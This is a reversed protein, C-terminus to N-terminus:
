LLARMIDVYRKSLSYELVDKHFVDVFHLNAGYQLFLLVAPLANRLISYFVPSRGHADLIDPDCGRGVMLEQIVEKDAYQAAVHM